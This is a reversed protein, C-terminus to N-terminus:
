PRAGAALEGRVIALLLGLNSINSSIAAVATSPSGPLEHAVYARDDSVVLVEQPANADDDDAAVIAAVDRTSQMLERLVNAALEPAADGVGDYALLAGGDLDIAMTAVCDPVATRLRTLLEDLHPNTGTM